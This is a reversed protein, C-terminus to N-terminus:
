YVIMKNSFLYDIIVDQNFVDRSKILYCVNKCFPREVARNVKRFDLSRTTEGGMLKLPVALSGGGVMQEVDDEFLLSELEVHLEEDHVVRCSL